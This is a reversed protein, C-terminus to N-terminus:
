HLVHERRAARARARISKLGARLYAPDLGLARATRPGRVCYFIWSEDLRPVGGYGFGTGFVLKKPADPM